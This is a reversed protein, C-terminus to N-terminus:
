ASREPHRPCPRPTPPGEVGRKASREPHRMPPMSTEVANLREVSDLHVNLQVAGNSLPAFAEVLPFFGLVFAAVWDVPRQMDGIAASGQVVGGFHIAAWLLLGVSMACLLVQVLLDRRRAAASLESDVERKAADARMVRDAYEAGRQAFVWDAVGQVNDYVDAYLRADLEKRRLQRAGNVTAAVVPVVFVLVGVAVLTVVGLLPTFVGLVVSLALWLVCAIVQPFISRLYLNQVHGIDDSLLGLLEGANRTVQWFVGNADIARFLRRRLESTMQLVWDHSRLREFYSLFPKGIGFVQVFALPVFLAWVGEAPQEASLDILYGSVFMLGCAFVMALLGLGLSAFMATRYQTFFPKLWTDNRLTRRMSM